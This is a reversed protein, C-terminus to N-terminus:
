FFMKVLFGVIFGIILGSSFTHTNGWNWINFATKEAAAKYDDRNMSM